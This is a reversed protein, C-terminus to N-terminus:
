QGGEETLGLLLRRVAVHSVAVGHQKKVYAATERLSMGAQACAKMSKIAEQEAEHEVLRAEKGEGVVRYGFPPTGGIYGGRARKASRGDHTRELIREREFEAIGALVTFFLKGVGNGTVPELGMDAIVLAVGSEKFQRAKALADEASRFARDLKAVVLTDGPALLDLLYGGQPRKELAISGSVGADKYVAVEDQRKAGLAQAVGRVVREQDELSTGAAQDASSVRVYGYIM